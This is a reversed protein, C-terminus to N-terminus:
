FRTFDGDRAPVAPGRRPAAAGKAPLRSATRAFGEGGGDRGQALTFFAMMSQLELAQANVEESTSALEESAAANQQVSQSIHSVAQNIQGV